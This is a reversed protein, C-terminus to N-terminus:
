RAIEIAVENTRMSPPTWPGNYQWLMYEGKTAIEMDNLADGLMEQSENIKQRTAYGSFAVVAYMKKDVDQIEIESANPKPANKQTIGEPLIFAMEMQGDVVKTIVPATMAIKQGRENNGFIYGGLYGFLSNGRSSRVKIQTQEGYERIEIGSESAGILEYSPRPTAAYSYGGWAFWAGIAVTITAMASVSWIKITKTM